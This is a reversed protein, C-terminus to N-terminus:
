DTVRFLRGNDFHALVYIAGNRDEGFSSIRYGTNMEMVIDDPDEPDVSWIKGSCLDGYLFRGELPHETRVVYGAVIACDGDDHGYSVLPPTIGETDCGPERCEPGETRIWGFDLGGPESAPHRNIEEATSQGVDGIYLDGNESDFSFRWPNRLGYDWIEPAGGEEAFPNDPPIAYRWAQEDDVDLRLIAGKMERPDTPEYDQRGDEGISVYLYGDSGFHLDGGKHWVRYQPAMLVLKGPIEPPEGSPPPMGINQGNRPEYDPSYERLETHGHVNSYFLFYRGNTAFDPHVTIGLLGREGQALVHQRIDILPEELLEGDQIVRVVGAQETVFFRGDGADVMATPQRLGQVVLDWSLRGETSIIPRQSGESTPPKTVPLPTAAQGTTPSQPASPACGVVLLALAVLGPIWPRTRVVRRTPSTRV